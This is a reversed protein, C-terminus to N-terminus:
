SERKYSQLCLMEVLEEGSTDKLLQGLVHDTEGAEVALGDADSALRLGPPTLAGASKVKLRGRSLVAVEATQGEDPSNQLVGIAMEGAGALLVEGQVSANLVVFCHRAETLDEGATFSMVDLLEVIAM